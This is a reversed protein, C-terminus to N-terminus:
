AQQDGGQPEGPVDVMGPPVGLGGLVAEMAKKMAASRAKTACRKLFDAVLERKAQSISRVAEPLTEDNRIFEEAVDEMTSAAVMMDSSDFPTCIKKVCSGTMALSAQRGITLEMM